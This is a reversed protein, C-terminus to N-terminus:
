TCPLTSRVGLVGNVGRAAPPLRAMGHECAPRESIAGPPRRVLRAPSVDIACLGVAAGRTGRLHEHLRSMLAAVDMNAYRDLYTEIVLALDNAEPGHGLVDVIAVFLGEELPRIVAADGSVAQGPYPRIFSSHELANM